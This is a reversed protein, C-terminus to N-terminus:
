DVTCIVQAGIEEVQTRVQDQEVGLASNAVRLDLLADPLPQDFHM